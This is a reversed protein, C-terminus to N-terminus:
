KCGNRIYLFMDFHFCIILLKTSWIKYIWTVIESLIQLTKAPRDSNGDVILGFVFASITLFRTVSIHWAM